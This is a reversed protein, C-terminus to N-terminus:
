GRGVRSARPTEADVPHGRPVRGARGVADGGHDRAAPWEGVAAEELRDLGDSGSQAAQADAAVAADGEAKRQTGPAEEGLGGDGPHGSGEGRRPGAM